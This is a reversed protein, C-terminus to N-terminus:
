IQDEVPISARRRDVGSRRDVPRDASFTMTKFLPLAGCLSGVAIADATGDCLLIAVMFGIVWGKRAMRLLDCWRSVIDRCMAKSIYLRVNNGIVPVAPRFGFDAVITKGDSFQCMGYANIIIGKRAMSIGAAIWIELESKNELTKNKHHM